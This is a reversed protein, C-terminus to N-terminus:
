LTALQQLLQDAIAKYAKYHRLMEKEITQHATCKSLKTYQCNESAIRLREKELPLLTEAILKSAECRDKNKNYVSRSWVVVPKKIYKIALCTEAATITNELADITAKKIDEDTSNRHFKIKEIFLGIYNTPINGATMLYPQEAKEFALDDGYPDSFPYNSESIIQLALERYRIAENLDPINDTMTGKPLNFGDSMFYKALTIASLLDGKDLATQLSVLAAPLYKPGHHLQCLAWIYHFKGEDLETESLEKANEAWKKAKDFDTCHFTRGKYNWSDSGGHDALVSACSFFCLFIFFQRM